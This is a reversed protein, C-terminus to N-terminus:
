LRAIVPMITRGAVSTAPPGAPLAASAVLLHEALPLSPAPLLLPLPHATVSTSFGATLRARLLICFQSPSYVYRLIAPSAATTAVVM